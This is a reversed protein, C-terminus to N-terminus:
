LLIGEHVVMLDQPTGINYWLGEYCEGSIKGQLLAEKWLHGLRLYVPQHGAFLEPRYIGINAFTFPNSTGIYIEGNDRLSFDGALHYPPNKVVILHALNFPQQLLRQLPYDTIVDASLVIFPESGLLPLAKVIGGGTELRESEESYLIQVGYDTGDGLAAIIQDKRYSINIVIEQIGIRQLSEIGYEILYRRGVQLLPKPTQETLAGMRQGVGAALIMARM